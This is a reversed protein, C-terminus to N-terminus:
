HAPKFYTAVRRGSEDPHIVIVRSSDSETQDAARLTDTSGDAFKITVRRDGRDVRTVVGENVNLGTPGAQDTEDASAQIGKVTYRVVVSTGPQLGDLARKGSRVKTDKSGGTLHDLGDGAKDLGKNLGTYFADVTSPLVITANFGNNPPVMIQAGATQPSALTLVGLFVGPVWFRHLKYM